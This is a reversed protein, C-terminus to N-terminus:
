KMGASAGAACPQSTEDAANQRPLTFYFTSGQGVQSELWVRGGHLEVIKKVVALGIGTGGQESKTALTQFMRFIREFYKSEIGPGNDAVSFKWFGEEAACGVRILGAPKDLYKVANSLLNQLVQTLRIRECQVVPLPGEVRVVIHPPPAIQEIIEAALANADVPELAPESHGIRAYQLIGDILLMMRGVRQRLLGLNARGQEDLRDAADQTIWDALTAIGRLPAKLDHAAVHAFDQLERNSRELNEVTARLERNLVELMEQARKQETVDRIMVVVGRAGGKRRVLAASCELHLPRGAPDLLRLDLAQLTGLLVQQLVNLVRGVDSPDLIGLEILHKGLVQDKARGLLELTKRNAELVRGGDDLYLIGECAEEFLIQFKEENERLAEEARRRASVDRAIGLVVHQGGLEVPCSCIEAQLFSGDKRHLRFEVPGVPHGMANKALCGAARPLQKRAILDTKLLSQGLLEERQYGTLQEAARNVDVLTGMLDTLYYADPANEFLTRLWERAPRLGTTDTHCEREDANM